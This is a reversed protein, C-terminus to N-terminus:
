TFGGSTTLLDRVRVQETLLHHRLPQGGVVGSGDHEVETLAEGLMSKVPYRSLWSRV